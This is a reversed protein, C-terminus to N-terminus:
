REAKLINNIKDIIIQPDINMCEYTNPNTCPNEGWFSCPRCYLEKGVANEEKQNAPYFGLRPSSPGWVSIVPIGAFAALHMNASDMSVITKCASIVSIEEDFSLKNILSKVKPYRKQWEDSKRKERDGGGLILIQVDERNHYYEIVKEMKDLPYMKADIRSFPAIGVLTKKNDLGVSQLVINQREPATYHSLDFESKLNHYGLQYLINTYIDLLRLNDRNLLREKSFFGSYDVRTVKSGRISLICDLQVDFTGNQLIAVRDYKKAFLFKVLLKYRHFLHVLGRLPINQKRYVMPYLSVNSPMQKFIGSFKPNTLVTFEDEPYQEALSNLVPLLILVDGIQSYRVILNKAM